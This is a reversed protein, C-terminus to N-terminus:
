KKRLSLSNVNRYQLSQYRGTFTTANFPCCSCSCTLLVAMYPKKNGYLVRGTQGRIKSWSDQGRIEKVVFRRVVFRRGRIERVVFRGVPM